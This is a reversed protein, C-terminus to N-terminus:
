ELKSLLELNIEDVPYVEAWAAMMEDFPVDARVGHEKTYEFHLRGKKDTRPLISTNRGDFEVTKAELKECLEKEFVPTCRIWRNEVYLEVYGHYVFKNTGLVERVEDPLRHNIFDTFVMRAPIGVARLLGVMLASKQVCYGEGREVITAPRFYEPRDSPLLMTYRIQDRVWYFLAKARGADDTQGEVISAALSKIQPDDSRIIEGPELYLDLSEKELAM